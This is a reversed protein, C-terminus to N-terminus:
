SAWPHHPIMLGNRTDAVCQHRRVGQGKLSMERLKRLGNGMPVQPTSEKSNRRWPAWCKSGVLLGMEQKVPFNM